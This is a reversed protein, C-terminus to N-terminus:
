GLSSIKRAEELQDQTDVSLFDGEVEITSIKYGGDIIRLQELKESNELQSVPLNNWNNLIDGRYGYIGVHGWFTTYKYWYETKVDRVYPLPSRSFYIAEKFNNILTKVVNPNHINEPKLKYIPTIVEHNPKKLFAEVVNDIVKPDIFPQDGQVNIIYTNKILNDKNSKPDIEGWAIKFLDDFVSAIRETGSQCNKSTMLVDFGWIKAKELLISSDTCLVIKSVLKSNNCAELTRNIMSKGGIDALVKNPLRSSELRAPVAVIFKYPEM